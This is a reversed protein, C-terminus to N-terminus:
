HWNLLREIVGLPFRTQFLVIFVLYGTMSCVAAILFARWLNNLSSLLTISFSLFLFTTLTFGLTEIVAIYAITLGLLALRKLGTRRDGLLGRFRIENEGRALRVGTRVAFALIALLLLVSVTVASAQAIWPVETITTLYYGTFALALIPIILDPLINKKPKDSDNNM